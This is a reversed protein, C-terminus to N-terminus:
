GLELTSIARIGPGPRPAPGRYMRATSFCPEMGLAECFGSLAEQDDPVDIMVPAGRTLAAAGLVLRRAEDMSPAVLPGIKNGAVCRRVTVFGSPLGGDSLVLTKRTETEQLWGSLFATKCYGNALAELEILHGIEDSSAARLPTSGTEPLIGAYRRNQAALVFGSKRYNAQQDPVGDLAVTREGAHALAHQWLAYGIGRGRYAPTCIYLGLFAIDDTHNVVSIAAVPQGDLEAVFVGQPDTAYFAAGDDLGPNWGEQAAWGLVTELEDCTMQRLKM